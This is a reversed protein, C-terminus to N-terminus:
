GLILLKASYKYIHREHTSKPTSLNTLVIPGSFNPWPRSTFSYKLTRSNQIDINRKYIYICIYAVGGEHVWAKHKFQAPHDDHGQLGEWDGSNKTM